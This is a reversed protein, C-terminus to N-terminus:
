TTRTNVIIGRGSFFKQFENMSIAAYARTKTSAGSPNHFYVENKDLNYGLLLILHGGKNRPTSSPERIMPSVSAIVFNGRSLEYLVQNLPANSFIHANWGLEKKVFTLYPKYILGQSTKLPLQYGGYEACKKGLEVLPVVKDTTYTLIMKTCAMGCGAWSWDEYETKDNAGSNKWNPDDKAKITKKLIKEVLKPSEWQSFYPVNEHRFQRPLSINRYRLTKLYQLLHNKIANM